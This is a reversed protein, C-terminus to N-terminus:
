WLDGQEDKKRLMEEKWQDVRERIDDAIADVEDLKESRLEQLEDFRLSYNESILDRLEDIVENSVLEEQRLISVAEDYREKEKKVLARIKDHDVDYEDYKDLIEWPGPAKTHAWALDVRSPLWEYEITEKLDDAHNASYYEGNGAESVKKLQKEADQDVNFGIINVKRHDNDESFSKAAAVPDGDCTEVGDSVIYVTIEGKLGKSMEAAKEIAGALPTWGKSEFKNLSAKFKKKDYSGMPYIEEIGKCSKQKDADAESGKHGYVILSVDQKQGIVDAFEQVAEKAINMKVKGDVKLLMSSSADLLLIAKGNETIKGDEEDNARKAGPLEPEPFDPKYAEATEIASAYNPTGLLKVLAHELKEPDQTETAVTELQGTLEQKKESMFEEVNMDLEQQFSLEEMLIGGTQNKMGERSPDVASLVSIDLLDNEQSQQNEAGTKEDPKNQSADDKSCASLAIIFCFLLLAFKKM